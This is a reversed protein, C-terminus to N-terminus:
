NTLFLITIIITMEKRLVTLARTVLNRASQYNLNMIRGIEDYDLQQYYKMHIIERQRDSLQDLAKNLQVQRAEDNELQIWKEEHGETLLAPQEMTDLEVTLTTMKSGKDFLRRRLSVMLYAKTSDPISLRERFNWVYIFLDHICDKVKDPEHCLVIGYRYLDDIHANYLERLGEPEGSKLSEWHRTEEM